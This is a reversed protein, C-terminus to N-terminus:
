ETHTPMSCSCKRVDSLARLDEIPCASEPKGTTTPEITRSNAESATPRDLRALGPAPRAPAAIRPVSERATAATPLASQATDPNAPPVSGPLPSTERALRPPQCIAALADRSLPRRKPGLQPGVVRPGW